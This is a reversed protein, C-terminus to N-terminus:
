IHDHLFSELAKLLQVRAQSNAMGDPLLNVVTVPKGAKTLAAAMRESQESPAVGWATGNAILVPLVRRTPRLM